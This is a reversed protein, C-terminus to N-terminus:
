YRNKKLCTDDIFVIDPKIQNLFSKLRASGSNLSLPIWINNSILTAVITAYSEASKESLIVIKQREKNGIKKLVSNILSRFTDYNVKQDAKLFMSGKAENISSRLARYFKEVNSKQHNM